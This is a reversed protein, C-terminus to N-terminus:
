AQRKRTKMGYEIVKENDIEDIISKYTEKIKLEALNQPCLKFVQDQSFCTLIGKVVIKGKQWKSLKGMLIGNPIKVIVREGSCLDRIDGQM